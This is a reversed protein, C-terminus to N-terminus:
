TTELPVIHVETSVATSCYMRVQHADLTYKYHSIDATKAWLNYVTGVRSSSLLCSMGILSSFVSSQVPIERYWDSVAPRVNDPLLFIYPIDTTGVFSM